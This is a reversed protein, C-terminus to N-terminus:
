WDLFAPTVADVARSARLDSVSTVSRQSNKKRTTKKAM